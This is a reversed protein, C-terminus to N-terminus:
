RLRTRFPRNADSRTFAEPRPLPATIRELRAVVIGTDDDTDLV